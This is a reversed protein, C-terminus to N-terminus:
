LLFAKVFFGAFFAKGLLIKEDSVFKIVCLWFISQWVCAILIELFETCMYALALDEFGPNEGMKDTWVRNRQM